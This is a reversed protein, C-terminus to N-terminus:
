SNYQTDIYGFHQEIYPSSVVSSIVNHSSQYNISTSGESKSLDLCQNLSTRLASKEAECSSCQDDGFFAAAASGPYSGGSPGNISNTSGVNDNYQIVLRKAREKSEKILIFFRTKLKLM